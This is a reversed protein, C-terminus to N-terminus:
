RRNFQKAVKRIVPTKIVGTLVSTEGGGRFFFMNSM